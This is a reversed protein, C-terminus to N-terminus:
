LLDLQNRILLRGIVFSKQLVDISESFFPVRRFSAPRRLSLSCFIRLGDRKLLTSLRGLIKLSVDEKVEEIGLSSGLRSVGEATKFFGNFFDM